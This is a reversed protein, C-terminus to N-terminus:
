FASFDVEGIVKRCTLGHHSIFDHFGGTLDDNRSLRIIIAAPGLEYPDEGDVHAIEAHELLDLEGQLDDGRYEREVKKLLITSAIGESNRKTRHVERRELLMALFERTVRPLKSLGNALKVISKEIDVEDFDSANVSYKEICFNSFCKGNGTKAVPPMEWQDYGSTAYKGDKDPVELDVRLRVANSRVVRHLQELRDLTDLDWIHDVEFGIPNALTPTLSYQSQKKGLILVRIKPFRKKQDSTLKELTKNVKASSATATIQFAWGNVDDGLDLAPENSRGENLNHLDAPLLINLVDRCFNEAFVSLDNFGLGCRLKVQGSITSLEDIIEGILYGRTIM